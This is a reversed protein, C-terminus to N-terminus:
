YKKSNENILEKNKMFRDYMIIAGATSVNLSYKQKTPIQIIDQCQVMISESLGSDEAGLIYIARDPHIYKTLLRSNDTMEIGIIKAFFPINKKFENFDPYNFLPIHKYSKVTDSHQYKYERGITFIFSADFMFASRWLTGINVDKKWNYIGIGFYGRNM